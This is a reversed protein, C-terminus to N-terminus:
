GAFSPVGARGPLVRAPRRAARQADQVLLHNAISFWAEGSIVTRALAFLENEEREIRRLLVECFREIAGCYQALASESDPAGARGAVAAAADGAVAFLVALEDLLAEAQGTARRIAPILFSDVKRWHCNHYLRQLSEGACAVQMASLAPQQLLQQLSQLGLRISAQEVSLAVLTYTATLM